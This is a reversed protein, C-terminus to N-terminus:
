NWMQVVSINANNRSSGGLAKLLGASFTFDVETAAPTGDVSCTTGTGVQSVVIVASNSSDMILLCSGGNTNDRVLALANVGTVTSGVTTYTATNIATNPIGEYYGNRVHIIASADLAYTSSPSAQKAGIVGSAAINGTTAITNTCTIQGHGGITTPATPIDHCGTNGNPLNHVTGATDYGFYTNGFISYASFGGGAGSSIVQCRAANAGTCAFTNNVMSFMTGQGAAGASIVPSSTTAGGPWQIKVGQIRVTANAWQIAPPMTNPVTTPNGLMDGGSVTLECYAGQMLCAIHTSATGLAHEFHNNSFDLLAGTATAPVHVQALTGNGNNDFHTAVFHWAGGASANVVVGSCTASANGNNFIFSNSVTNPEPAVNSIGWLGNCANTHINSRDVIAGFAAASGTGSYVIGYGFGSIDTGVVQVGHASNSGNGIQIGRSTDAAGGAGSLICGYVGGPIWSTDTNDGFLFLTASASTLKIQANGDCVVQTRRHLSFGSAVNCATGAANAPVFIGTSATQAATIAASFATADNTSGDCKAGFDMVNLLPTNNIPMDGLTFPVSIGGGSLKVDVHQEDTYFFWQGSSAATFPNGKATGTQDSYLTALNLTGVKYVTVTCSPFSQQFRTVAPSSTSSQAVYAARNGDQCWGQLKGRGWAPLCVLCMAAALLLKKTM